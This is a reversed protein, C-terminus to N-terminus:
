ERPEDLETEILMGEIVNELMISVQNLTEKAAELERMTRILSDFTLEYQKLYLRRYKENHLSVINTTKDSM